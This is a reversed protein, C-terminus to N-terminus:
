PSLVFFYRRFYIRVMDECNRPSTRVRYAVIRDCEESRKRRRSIKVVQLPDQSHDYTRGDCCNVLGRKCSNCSDDWLTPQICVNDGKKVHTVGEGVEEVVGSFEHGLTLPLTEGTIPHPHGPTPILNAGSVYEHLDTGCIASATLKVIADTDDQLVPEAVDDLRIDGIGHFVVAKM